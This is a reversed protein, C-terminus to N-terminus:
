RPDRNGGTFVDTLAFQHDIPRGTGLDHLTCTRTTGRSDFEVHVAGLTYRSLNDLYVPEGIWERLEDDTIQDLAPALERRRKQRRREAAERQAQERALRHERTEEVDPDAGAFLNTIVYRKEDSLPPADALIASLHEERTTM